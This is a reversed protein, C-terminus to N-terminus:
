QGSARVGVLSEVLCFNKGFNLFSMEGIRVWTNEEQNEILYLKKPVQHFPIKMKKRFSRDYLSFVSGSSTRSINM